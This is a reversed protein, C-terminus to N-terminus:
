FDFDFMERDCDCMINILKSVRTMTDTVIYVESM